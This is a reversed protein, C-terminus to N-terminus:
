HAGDYNCAPHCHFTATGHQPAACCDHLASWLVPAAPSSHLPWTAASGSCLFPVAPWVALGTLCPPSVHKQKTDQVKGKATKQSASYQIDGFQSQSTPTVASRAVNGVELPIEGVEIHGLLLILRDEHSLHCMGQAEVVASLVLHQLFGGNPGILSLM